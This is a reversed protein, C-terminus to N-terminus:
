RNGIKELRIEESCGSSGFFTFFIGTDTGAQSLDGTEVTVEYLIQPFYFNANLWFLLLLGVGWLGVWTKFVLISGVLLHWAVM